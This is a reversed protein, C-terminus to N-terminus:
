RKEQGIGRKNLYDLIHGVTKAGEVEYDPIEIKFEEELAMVLEVVDLSDAGLDDKFDAEQTVLNENVGLLSVVVKRVRDQVTMEVEM